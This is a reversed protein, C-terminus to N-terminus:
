FKRMPIIKKRVDTRDYHYESNNSDNFSVYYARYESRWSSSWYEGETIDLIQKQKKILFLEGLNPLYWDWKGAARYERLIYYAASSSSSCSAIYQTIIAGGGLSDTRYDRWSYLCGWDYSQTPLDEKKPVILGHLEGAVYDTDGNKFLYVIIGGEHEDGVGLLLTRFTMTAGYTTGLENTAFARVYYLTNKQLGSLVAQFEGLVNGTFSRKEAGNGLSPEMREKSYVFGHELIKGGGNSTINGKVRVKTSFIDGISVTTVIPMSINRTYISLVDSYSTGKENTAFARIYYRTGVSLRSLIASFNGTGVGVEVKNDTLTPINRTSSYVFGRKLINGGGANEIIARVEIEVAETSYGVIRLEKPLEMDRTTFEKTESYTVGFQNKAYARVKYSGGISLGTLEASFDGLGGESLVVRQTQESELTPYYTYTSYVFGKEIIDGEEASNVRGKLSATTHTLNSYSLTVGSPPRIPLTQFTIPKSYATGAENTIFTRVQYKKAPLLGTLEAALTHEQTLPVQVKISSNELTPFPETTSYVFGTQYTSSGGVHAIKGKIQATNKAIATAPSIELGTSLAVDLTTFKVVEGLSQGFQTVVYGRVYYTTKASLDNVPLSFDILKQGRSTVTYSVESDKQSPVQNVSSYYFGYKRIPYGGNDIVSGKLEVQYSDVNAPKTLIKAETAAETTFQQIKSVATGQGNIAFAQYYYTASPLLDEIQLTYSGIKYANEMIMHQKELSDKSTGYYFGRKQLPSNFDKEVTASLVATNKAVKSTEGLVVAPPSVQKFKYEEKNCACLCLLTLILNIYKKM